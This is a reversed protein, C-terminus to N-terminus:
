GTLHGLATMLLLCVVLAGFGFAGAKAGGRRTFVAVVSGLTVLPVLWDRVVLLGDPFLLGGRVGDQCTAGAGCSIAILPGLLGVTVGTFLVGLALVTLGVWEAATRDRPLETASAPTIVPSTNDM